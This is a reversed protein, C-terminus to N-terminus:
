DGRMKQMLSKGNFNDSETTRYKNELVKVHNTDNCILWDFSIKWNSHEGNGGFGNILKPQDEIATIVADFNKFSDQAYRAKLHKRRTGTISKISSLQPYKQQLVNWATLVDTEWVYYINNYEKMRENKLHQQNFTLQINTSHQNTQQNPQQNEESAQYERYRTVYVITFKNTSKTTIENTSKLRTIATRCSQQSIGLTKSLKQLGIVLAGPPIEHGM